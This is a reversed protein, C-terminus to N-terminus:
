SEFVEEYVQLTAKATKEWSFKAAQRLSQQSKEQAFKKNMLIKKVGDIISNESNPDCYVGAEGAVEPLSSTNSCVVPAGCAMAELVPLGFGEYFSPFVFVSAGSYLRALDEDNLFGPTIIEQNKQPAEGVVVLQLKFDKKIKEFAGLLNGLKQSSRTIVTLIYDNKIGFKKKVAEIEKVNRPYFVSSAAEYIVVIKKEPIQLTEVIDKKSNQSVAVIKDVEKKVWELRAKQVSITKRDFLQPFRYVIM